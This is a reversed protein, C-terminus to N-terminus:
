RFNELLMIDSEDQDVRRFLIWKGDASVGFGPSGGYTRTQEFRGVVRKQSTAFSFFELVAETPGVQTQFCIGGAFVNWYGWIGENLM